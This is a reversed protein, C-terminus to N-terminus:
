RGSMHSHRLKFSLDAAMNRMVTYGLRPETDCLAQFAQRAIVQVRTDDVIARVTASRPGMDVLAMEGFLQGRGLNVVARPAAAGATPTVIIEVMGDCVIFLENGAEGQHTIIEGAAYRREHCLGSVARLDDDTLGELLDVDRLIEILDMDYREERHCSGQRPRDPAPGSTAGEMRAGTPHWALPKHLRRLQRFEDAM